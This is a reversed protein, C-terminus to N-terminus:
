ILFCMDSHFFKCSQLLCNNNKNNKSQPCPFFPFESIQPLTALCQRLALAISEAKFGHAREAEAASSVPKM